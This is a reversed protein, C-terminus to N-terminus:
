TVSSAAFVKSARGCMVSIAQLHKFDGAKELTWWIGIVGGGGIFKEELFNGVEACVPHFFPTQCWGQTWWVMIHHAVEHILIIFVFPIAWYHIHITIEKKGTSTTSSVVIGNCTSHHKGDEAL